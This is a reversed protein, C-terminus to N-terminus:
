YIHVDYIIPSQPPIKKMDGLLGHALPSPIILLAQDGRKLYQVGKHIGSEIDEHEVIFSRRGDEKSSYCLTGDLLRVEYDMSIQMNKRISDGKGSPKYVHYRVGSSTRVFPLKHSRVYYDIEDNEKDVLQRNARMFQDRIGADQKKAPDTVRGGDKNESTCAPLFIVALVLFLFATKVNFSVIVDQRTMPM